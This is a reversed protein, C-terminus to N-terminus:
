KGCEVAYKETARQARTRAKASAKKSATAADEKAYRQRQELAICHKRRSAAERAYKDHAREALAEERRRGNQLRDLEAKDAALRQRADQAAEASFTDDTQVTIANACATDSYLTQTGTKCKYVASAPFSVAYLLALLLLRSM